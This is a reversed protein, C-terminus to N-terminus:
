REAEEAARLSAQLARCAADMARALTVAGAYDEADGVQRYFSIERDVIVANRYFHVTWDPV